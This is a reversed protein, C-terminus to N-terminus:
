DHETHMLLSGVRVAVTAAHPATGSMKFGDTCSLTWGTEKNSIITRIRTLTPNPELEDGVTISCMLEM